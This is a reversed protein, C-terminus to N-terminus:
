SSDSSAIKGTACNLNMSKKSVIYVLYNAELNSNNIGSITISKALENDGDNQRYLSIWYYRYLNEWQAFSLLGSSLGTSQNGNIKLM